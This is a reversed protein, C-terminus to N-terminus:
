WRYGRYAKYGKAQKEEVKDRYYDRAKERTGFRWTMRQGSSGVRGWHASVSKAGLKIAYFKDSTGKKYRLAKRDGRSRAGSTRKSASPHMYEPKWSEGVLEDMWAELAATEAKTLKSPAKKLLREAAADSLKRPRTAKPKVVRVKAWKPPLLEKITKGGKKYQAWKRSIQKQTYGAKAGRRRFRNYADRDYKAM